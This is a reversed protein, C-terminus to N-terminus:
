ENNSNPSMMFIVVDDFGLYIYHHRCEQGVCKHQYLTCTAANKRAPINLTSLSSWFDTAWIPRSILRGFHLSGPYAFWRGVCYVRRSTGSACYHKNPLLFLPNPQGMSIALIVGRLCCNRMYESYWNSDSPSIINRYILNRQFVCIVNLGRESSCKFYILLIM